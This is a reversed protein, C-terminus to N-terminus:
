VAERGAFPSRLDGEPIHGGGGGNGLGSVGQLDSVFWTLQFEELSSCRQLIRDPTEFVSISQVIMEGGRTGRSVRHYPLFQVARSQGVWIIARLQCCESGLLKANGDVEEKLLRGVQGLAM